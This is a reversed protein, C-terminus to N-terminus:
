WRRKKRRLDNVLNSLDYAILRIASIAALALVTGKVLISEIDAM